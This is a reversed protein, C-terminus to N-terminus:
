IGLNVGGKCIYWIFGGLIFVSFAVKTHGYKWGSSKVLMRVIRTLVLGGGYIGCLLFSYIVIWVVDLGVFVGIVGFLKIDGAGLVGWAFLVMLGIVPILGGMAGLMLGKGGELFGILVLGYILWALNYWNPIKGTKLDFVM